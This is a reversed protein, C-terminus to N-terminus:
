STATERLAFYHASISADSLDHKIAGHNALYFPFGRVCVFVCVRHASSHYVYFFDRFIIVFLYNALEALWSWNGGM